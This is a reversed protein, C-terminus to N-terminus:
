QGHNVGRWGHPELTALARTVMVREQKDHPELKGLMGELVERAGAEVVMEHATETSYFFCGYARPKGDTKLISHVKFPNAGGWVTGVLSCM